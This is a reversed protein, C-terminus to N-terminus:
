RRMPVGSVLAAVAPDRLRQDRFIRLSSRIAVVAAIRAPDNPSQRDIVDDFV